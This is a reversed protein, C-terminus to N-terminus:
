ASYTKLSTNHGSTFRVWRHAAISSYARRFRRKPAASYDRLCRSHPGRARRDGRRTAVSLSGVGQRALVLCPHIGCCGRHLRSNGPLGVAQSLTARPRRWTGVAQSRARGGTPAGVDRDRRRGQSGVAGLWFTGQARFFVVGVLFVFVAWWGLQAIFGPVGAM